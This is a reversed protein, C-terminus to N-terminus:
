GLGRGRPHSLPGSPLTVPDPERARTAPSPPPSPRGGSSSASRGALRMSREALLAAIQQVHTLDHYARHHLLEVVRLPGAVSHRGSRELQTATLGRLFAVAIGRERAFDDLLTPVDRERAGSAALPAEEDMNEIAPDDETVMRRFREIAVGENVWLHALM